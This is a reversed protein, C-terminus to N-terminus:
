LAGAEMGVRMGDMMWEHTKAYSAYAKSMELPVIDTIPSQKAVAIKYEGLVEMLHKDQDIVARVVDIAQDADKCLAIFTITDNDEDIENWYEVTVIHYSLNESDDESPQMSVIKVDDALKIGTIYFDNGATQEGYDAAIQLAMNIGSSQVLLKKRINKITKISVEFMYGSKIYNYPRDQNTILVDKIEGAQQHFQIKAVDEKTLVKHNAIILETREVQSVEGTDADIFDEKWKRRVSEALMKGVMIKPDDVRMRVEDIRTVLKKQEM